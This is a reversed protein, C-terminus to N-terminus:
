VARIPQKTAEPGDGVGKSVIITVRGGLTQTKSQMETLALEVTVSTCRNVKPLAKKQALKGVNTIWNSYDSKSSYTMSAFENSGEIKFVWMLKAQSRHMNHLHLYVLWQSVPHHNWVYIYITM